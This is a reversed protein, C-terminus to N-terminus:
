RMKSLFHLKRTIIGVQWLNKASKKVKILFFCLISHLCLLIWFLRFFDDSLVEIFRFLRPFLITNNIQANPLKAGVCITLWFSMGSDINQRFYCLIFQHYFITLYFDVQASPQHYGHMGLKSIRLEARLESHLPHCCWPPPTCPALTAM